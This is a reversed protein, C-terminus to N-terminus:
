RGEKPDNDEDDTGIKTANPQLSLPIKLKVSELELRRPTPYAM